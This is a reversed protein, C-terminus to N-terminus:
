EPARSDVLTGTAVDYVRVAAVQGEEYVAVMLRGEAGKVERSPRHHLLWEDGGVRERAESCPAAPEQEALPLDPNWVRCQGPPVAGRPIGLRYLTEAPKAGAPGAAADGAGAARGRGAVPPAEGPGRERVMEGTRRDFVRVLSPGAEGYVVLHIRDPGGEPPVPHRLLWGGAGVRRALRRCPGPGMQQHSPSRPRWIRCKGPAPVAGLPIGLSALTSPEIDGSGGGGSRGTRPGACAAVLVVLAARWAADATWRLRSRRRTTRRTARPGEM